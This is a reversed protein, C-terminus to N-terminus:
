FKSPKDYTSRDPYEQEVTYGVTLKITV